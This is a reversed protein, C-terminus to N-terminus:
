TCYVNWYRRLWITNANAKYLYYKDAKSISLRLLKLAHSMLHHMTM